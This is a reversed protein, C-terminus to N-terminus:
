ESIISILSLSNNEAHKFIGSVEDETELKISLDECLDECNFNIENLIKYNSTLDGIVFSPPDSIKTSKLKIEFTIDDDVKQKSLVEKLIYKISSADQPPNSIKQKEVSLLYIFGPEYNFGEINFYFYSWNDTGIKKAEQTLLVLQQGVGIATQQFHNVRLTVIAPEHEDDSCSLTFQLITVLILLIIKRM